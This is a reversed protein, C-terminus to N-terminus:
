PKRQGYFASIIILIFVSLSMFPISVFGFEVFYPTGCSVYKGDVSGLGCIFGSETMKESQQIIFHYLALFGGVVALLISYMSGGKYDGKILALGSVFTIPYMFIRQYWCLDCPPFDLGISLVLSGILSLFSSIFVIILGYRSLLHIYFDSAKFIFSIFFSFVLIVLLIIGGAMLKIILDEM